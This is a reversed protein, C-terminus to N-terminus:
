HYGSNAHIIGKVEWRPSHDQFEVRDGVRMAHQRLLVDISGQKYVTCLCHGVGLIPPSDLMAKIVAQKTDIASVKMRFSLGCICEKINVEYDNM